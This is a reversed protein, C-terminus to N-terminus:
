PKSTSTSQCTEVKFAQFKSKVTKEFLSDPYPNALIQDKRKEEVDPGYVWMAEGRRFEAVFYGAHWGVRFLNKGKTVIRMGANAIVESIKM